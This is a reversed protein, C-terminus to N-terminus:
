ETTAIAKTQTLQIPPTIETLISVSLGNSQGISLVNPVALPGQLYATELQRQKAEISADMDDMYRQLEQV